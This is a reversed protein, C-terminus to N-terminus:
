HQFSCKAGYPCRGEKQGIPSKAWFCGGLGNVLVTTDNTKFDKQAESLSAFGAAQMAAKVAAPNQLVRAAAGLAPDHQPKNAPTPAPSPAPAPAPNGKANSGPTKRANKQQQQKQRRAAQRSLGAGAGAAATTTAGQGKAKQLTAVLGQLSQLQSTMAAQDARLKETQKSNEKNKFDRCEEAGRSTWYDEALVVLHCRHHVAMDCLYYGNRASSGGRTALSIVRDISSCWTAWMTQLLSLCAILSNKSKTITRQMAQVLGQTFKWAEAHWSNLVLVFFMTAELCDQASELNKKKRLDKTPTTHVWGGSPAQSIVDKVQEVGFSRAEESIDTGMGILAAFSSLRKNAGFAISLIVDHPLDLSCESRCKDNVEVCKEAIRTNGRLSISASNTAPTQAADRLLKFREGRFTRTIDSHDTEDEEAEEEDSDSNVYRFGPATSDIDELWQDLDKKEAKDLKRLETRVNFVGTRTVRGTKGKKSAKEANAPLKRKMAERMLKEPDVGRAREGERWLRYYQVSAVVESIDLKAERTDNMTVTWTAYGANANFKADTIKGVVPEPEDRFRYKLYVEENQQSVWEQCRTQDLQMDSVSVDLITLQPTGESGARETREEPTPAPAPAPAPAPNPKQKKHAREQPEEQPKAQMRKVPSVGAWIDELSEESTKTAEEEDFTEIPDAEPVMADSYKKFLTKIATQTGVGVGEVVEKNWKDQTIPTQQNPAVLRNLLREAQCLLAFYAKVNPTPNNGGAIKSSARAVGIGSMIAHLFNHPIPLDEHTLSKFLTIHPLTRFVIKRAPTNFLHEHFYEETLTVVQKRFEGMDQPKPSFDGARIGMVSFMKGITKMLNQIPESATWTLDALNKMALISFSKSGRRTTGPKFLIIDQIAVYIDRWAEIGTLQEGPIQAIANTLVQSIQRASQAAATVTRRTTEVLGLREQVPMVGDLAKDYAKLIAEAPSKLEIDQNATM